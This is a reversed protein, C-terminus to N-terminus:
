TETEHQGRIENAMNEMYQMIEKYGRYLTSPMLERFENESLGDSFSFYELFSVNLANLLDGKSRCFFSNVWDFCDGIEEIKREACLKEALNRLEMMDIHLLGENDEVEESLQPYKNLLERYFEEILEKDNEGEIWNPYNM